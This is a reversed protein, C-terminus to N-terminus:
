ATKRYCAKEEGFENELRIIMDQSGCVWNDIDKIVVDDPKFGEGKERSWLRVTQRSKLLFLDSFKFSTKRVSGVCHTLTWNTLSVDVRKSTNELIIYKGDLSCESISIPGKATRHAYLKQPFKQIIKGILDKTPLNNNVQFIIEGISYNSNFIIETENWLRRHDECRNYIEKVDEEKSEPRMLEKLSQNCFQLLNENTEKFEPPSSRLVSIRNLKFDEIEQNLDDELTRLYNVLKDVQDSVERKKVDCASILKDESQDLKDSFDLLKTKLEELTKLTDKYAAGRDIEVTKICQIENVFLNKPLSEMHSSPITQLCNCKLCRVTSYRNMSILCQLCFTHGCNLLRPDKFSSKCFTCHLLNLVSETSFVKYLGTDNTLAVEKNM